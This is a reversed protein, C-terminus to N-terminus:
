KGEMDYVVFGSYVKPYFYTTKQPTTEGARAVLFVERMLPPNVFFALQVDGQEVIKITEENGKIYDINEKNRQQEETIGLIGEIIIKHLINIDLEHDDKVEIYGNHYDNSYSKLVEDVHMHQMDQMMDRMRSNDIKTIICKRNKYTFRKAITLRKNM